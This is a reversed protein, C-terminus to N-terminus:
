GSYSKIVENIVKKLYIKNQLKDKKFDLNKLISDAIQHTQNNIRVDSLNMIKQGFNYNFNLEIKKIESRYSKPTLLFKYIKNSETIDIILKGDLTLQNENVYFLSNSIRFNAFNKWSFKTNDIDILGENIKSNLILNIFNTNQHIKNAKINLDINLNENNFIEIKLLQSLLANTDIINSLDLEYTQGKFNSYFPNLNLEGQYIFKPNDLKDFYEFNFYNKNFEYNANSKDKNFIFNTLGTKIDAIYNHENEIQLKFSNLNIKSFIKSNIKNNILEFSYPINFIENKSFVINQLNNKDFYYKMKKIKIIFLVEEDINRYFIKSDNIKFSSELFDNDLLKIFFNYNKKNFNFNANQLIINNVKINKLFFLNDLSVYIKLKKVVSIKKQNELISSNEIVFHPRPLFKYNFNNSFIFNTNFKDFLQNKLEAKIEAENYIYPISLYSFFIIVLTALSLLAKNGSLIYSKKKIFDKINLKNLYKELLNTIFLNIKKLFIVFYNKKSM